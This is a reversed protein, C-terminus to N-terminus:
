KRRKRKLWVFAGLALLLLVFSGYRRGFAVLAPPMWAPGGRVPAASPPSSPLPLIVQYTPQPTPSETSVDPPDADQAHVLLAGTLVVVVAILLLCIRAFGCM